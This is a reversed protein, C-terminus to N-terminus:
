PFNNAYDNIPSFSRFLERLGEALFWEYSRIQLEVLNPVEQDYLTRKTKHQIETM